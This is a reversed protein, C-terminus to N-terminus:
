STLGINNLNRLIVQQQILMARNTSPPQKLLWDLTERTYEQLAPVDLPRKPSQRVIWPRNHTPDLLLHNLATIVLLDAILVNQNHFTDDDTSAANVTLLQKLKAAAAHEIQARINSRDATNFDKPNFTLM